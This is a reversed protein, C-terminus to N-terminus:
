FYADEVKMTAVVIGSLIAPINSNQIPIRSAQFSLACMPSALDPACYKQELYIDNLPPSCKSESVKMDEIDRSYPM